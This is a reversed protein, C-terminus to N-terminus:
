ALSELFREVSFFFVVAVAVSFSTSFAVTAASVLSTADDEEAATSLSSTVVGGDSEDVCDFSLRHTALFKVEIIQQSDGGNGHGVERQTCVVPLQLRGDLVRCKRRREGVGNDDADHWGRCSTLQYRDDGFSALCLVALVVAYGPAFVAHRYDAFGVVTLRRYPVIQERQLARGAM